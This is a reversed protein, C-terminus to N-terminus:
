GAYLVAGRVMGDICPETVYPMRGCDQLPGDTEPFFIGKTYFHGM